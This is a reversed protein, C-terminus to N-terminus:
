IDSRKYADRSGKTEFDPRLYDYKTYNRNKSYMTAPRDTSLSSAPRSYISVKGGYSGGGSRGSYRRSSYSYSRGGYSKTTTLNNSTPTTAKPATESSDSKEGGDWDFDSKITKTARRGVTPVHNGSSGKGEYGFAEKMLNTDTLDADYYSPTEEHNWSKGDTSDPEYVDLLPSLSTPLRGTAYSESGTHSDSKTFLDKLDLLTRRTNSIPTKNGEGDEIYSRKHYTSQLNQYKDPFTGINKNWLINIYGYLTNNAAKMNQYAENQETYNAFKGDAKMSSFDDQNQQILARIYNSCNTRASSPIVVGNAAMKEADFDFKEMLEFVKQGNASKEEDSANDDVKLYNFCAMQSEDYTYSLPQETMFYGTTRLDTNQGFIMLPNHNNFTDLLASLTRKYQASQRWMADDWSTSILDDDDKSYPNYIKFPTHAFAKTSMGGFNDLLLNNLATWELPATMREALKIKFLCTYYDWRSIPNNTDLGNAEWEKINSEYNFFDAVDFVTNVVGLGLFGCQSLTRGAGDALMELWVDKGEETQSAAVAVAMPGGFLMWTDSFMWNIEKVPKGGVKWETWDFINMPDDDDPDPPEVGGFAMIVGLSVGFMAMNTGLQAVDLIMNKLIPHDSGYGMLNQLGSTDGGLAGKTGYYGRNALYMLTHSFPILKGAANIAFAPFKAVNWIGAFLVPHDEKIRNVWVTTPNIAGMSSDSVMLFARQGEPTTLSESLFGVPDEAMQKELAEMDEHFGARAREAFFNDFYNQVDRGRGLSQMYMMEGNATVAMKVGKTLKSAELDKVKQFNSREDLRQNEYLYGSLSDMGTSALVSAHAFANKIRADTCLQRMDETMRVHGTVQNLKTYATTTTLGIGRTMTSGMAIPLNMFVSTLSDVNVYARALWGFIGDETVIEGTMPDLTEDSGDTKRRKPRNTKRFKQAKDKREANRRSAQRMNEQIEAQRDYVTPDVTAADNMAEKVEESATFDSLRVETGNLRNSYKYPCDSVEAGNPGKVEMFVIEEMADSFDYITERQDANCYGRPSDLWPQIKDVWENIGRQELQAPTIGIYDAWIKAEERTLSHSIPFVRTRHFYSNPNAFAFPHGFNDAAEIMGDLADTLDDLSLYAESEEQGFLKGNRDTAMGFYRRVSKNVFATSTKPDLGLKDCFPKYVYELYNKKEQETMKVNIEGSNYERQIRAVSEFRRRLKRDTMSYIAEDTRVQTGHDSPTKENTQPISEIAQKVWEDNLVSTDNSEEPRVEELPKNAIRALYKQRLEKLHDTQLDTLEDLVDQSHTMGGNVVDTLFHENVEEPDLGDRELDKRYELMMYEFADELSQINRGHRLGYKRIEDLKRQVIPQATLSKIRNAREADLQEATPNVTKKPAAPAPTVPKTSTPQQETTQKQSKGNIFDEYTENPLVKSLGLDRPKSARKRTKPKSNGDPEKVKQEVAEVAEKTIKPAKAEPKTAVRDARGGIANDTDVEQEVVPTLSESSANAVANKAKQANFTLDSLDAM